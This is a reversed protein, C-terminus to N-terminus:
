VLVSCGGKHRGWGRLHMADGTLNVETLCALVEVGSELFVLHMAVSSVLLLFNDDLMCM